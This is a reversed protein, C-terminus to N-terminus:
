QLLAKLVKGIVERSAWVTGAAAVGWLSMSKVLRLVTTYWEWDRRMLRFTKREGPDLPREEWSRGKQDHGNGNEEGNVM